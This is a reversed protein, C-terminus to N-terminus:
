FHQTNKGFGTGPEQASTFFYPCTFRLVSRVTLLSPWFIKPTSVELERQDQKLIMMMMTTTTATRSDQGDRQPPHIPISRNETLAKYNIREKRRSIKKEDDAKSSDM